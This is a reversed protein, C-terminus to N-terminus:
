NGLGIELIYFYMYHVMEHSLLHYQSNDVVANTGGDFPPANEYILLGGDDHYFSAGDSHAIPADDYTVQGNSDIMLAGGAAVDDM